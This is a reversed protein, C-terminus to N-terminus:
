LHRAAQLGEFTALTSGGIGSQVASDIVSSLLVKGAGTGRITESTIFWRLHAGDTATLAGDIAISGEIVENVIALWLGDRTEAYDACFDALGRAVKNEFYVGFGAHRHYYTGHREAIRGIAGPIYGKYLAYNM